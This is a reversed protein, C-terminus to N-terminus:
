RPPLFRCCRTPPPRHVWWLHPVKPLLRRPNLNRVIPRPRRRTPRPCRVPGCWRLSSHLCWRLSSPRSTAVDGSPVVAIMPPTATPSRPFWPNEPAKRACNHPSDVTTPVCPSAACSSVCGIQVTDRMIRPVRSKVPINEHLRQQQSQAVAPSPKPRRPQVAWFSAIWWSHRFDCFDHEQEAVFVSRHSTTWPADDRFKASPSTRPKNPSKSGACM